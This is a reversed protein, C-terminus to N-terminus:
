PMLTVLARRLMKDKLTRSNAEGDVRVGAEVEAETRPLNYGTNMDRDMNEDMIPRKGKQIALPGLKWSREDKSCECLKVSIKGSAGYAM